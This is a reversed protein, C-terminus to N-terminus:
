IVIFEHGSLARRKSKYVLGAYIYIIIYVLACMVLWYNFHTHLVIIIVVGKLPQLGGRCYQIHGLLNVVGVRYTHLFWILLTAMKGAPNQCKTQIILLHLTLWALFSLDLM